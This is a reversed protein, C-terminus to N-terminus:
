GARRRGPMIRAAARRLRWQARSITPVAFSTDHATQLDPPVHASLCQAFATQLARSLRPQDLRRALDIMPERVHRMRVLRETANRCYLIGLDLHDEVENALRILVVERDIAGGTALQKALRSATDAEWPHLTYRTILEEIEHGMRQRVQKRKPDSRGLWGAGFDGLDYTAHLLGAAVLTAPTDLSGLVSATGIAHCLFPKGSGRYSGSFLERAYTHARDIVVLDSSAYGRERLQNLLQLPTQAYTLAAASDHQVM